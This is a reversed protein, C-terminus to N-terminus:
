REYRIVREVRYHGAPEVPRLLMLEAPLGVRLERGSRPPLPLTDGEKVGQSPLPVATLGTGEVVEVAGHVRLDGLEEISGALVISPIGERSRVAQVAAVGVDALFADGVEGYVLAGRIILHLLGKSDNLPISEYREVDAHEVAGSALAELASVLAVFNLRLLPEDPEPSSWPGTEILVTATGWRVLNDGFARVEFSDDYRGIRGPALPELADRIVACVKKALVRGPNDSRSADFPPALLSISAPRGTGGVATRWSQNHLNFGLSPQLRDRLAKLTRGEPTQLALADRNIDIGQANRRQFREAGDPNLMPVAHLTLASLLRAVRPHERHRRVYEFLDLLATTATPEDGHMQSWLLIHRPGGGVRVVHLPRGEVSRGVEEMQFLDPAAERFRRLQAQVHVQRVLAPPPLGQLHVEAWLDFLERPTAPATVIIRM